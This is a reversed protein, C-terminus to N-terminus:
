AADGGSEIRAGPQRQRYLQEGAAVREVPSGFRKRAEALAQDRASGAAPPATTDAGCAPCKTM